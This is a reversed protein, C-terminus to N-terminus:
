AGFQWTLPQSIQLSQYATGASADLQVSVDIPVSEGANIQTKTLKELLDISTTLGAATGDYLTKTGSVM